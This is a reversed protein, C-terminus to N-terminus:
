PAGSRQMLFLIGGILLGLLLAGVGVLVLPNRPRPAEPEQPTDAYTEPAPMPHSPSSSYVMRIGSSLMKRRAPLTLRPEQTIAMALAEILEEMSTYREEPAKNLTRSIIDALPEPVGVLPRPDDNLIATVLGIAGRDTRFPLAGNVLEYTLVGWAFQDSRADTEQGLLQEPSMYAPTGVLSGDSTLRSLRTVTSDQMGANSPAAGPMRRAIGFDLVKAVGDERVMVNEPKVDRHVVGEAHAAALALAIQLALDTREGLSLDRGIMTRLTKGAVLEMAIFPLGQHEGVDYVAVINPHTLAAASRAERIMRAVAKEWEAPDTDLERRLVKLAVKRRLRTDTAAYVEGRAGEGLPSDIVYRDFTEAPSLPM